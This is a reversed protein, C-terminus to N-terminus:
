SNEMLRLVQIRHNDTDAVYVKGTSDRAICGPYMLQGSGAGKSGFSSFFTLDFNLVLICHRVTDVAYIKGNNTNFAVDILSLFM